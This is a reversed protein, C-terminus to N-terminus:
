LMQRKQLDLDLNIEQINIVIIRYTNTITFAGFYAILYYYYYYYCYYSNSLFLQCGGMQTFDLDLRNKADSPLAKYYM